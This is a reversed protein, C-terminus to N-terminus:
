DGRFGLDESFDLNNGVLGKEQYYLIRGEKKM